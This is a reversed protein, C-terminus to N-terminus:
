RAPRRRLRRLSLQQQLVRELRRGSEGPGRHRARGPDDGEVVRRGRQHLAVRRARPRRERGAGLRQLRGHGSFLAIPGLTSNVLTTQGAPVDVETTPFTYGYALDGDIFVQLLVDWTGPTMPTDTTGPNALTYPNVM